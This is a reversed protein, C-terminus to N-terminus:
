QYAPRRAARQSFRRNRDPEGKGARAAAGQAARSRGVTEICRGVAKDLEKVADPASLAQRFKEFHEEQEAPSPAAASGTPATFFQEWVGDDLEALSQVKLVRAVENMLRAQLQVLPEKDQEYVSRVERQARERAELTRQPEPKKFPVRAVINRLPTYGTRYAFPPAWGGTILWLALACLM